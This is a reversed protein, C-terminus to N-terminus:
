AVQNVVSAKKEAGHATALIAIKGMETANRFLHILTQEQESLSDLASQNSVQTKLTHIENQLRSIQANIDPDNTSTAHTQKLLASQAEPPLSSVLYEYVNGGVGEKRRRKWKQRKASQNLGQMTIKKGSLELFEKLEKLTIWSGM